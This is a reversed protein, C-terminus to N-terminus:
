QCRALALLARARVVEEAAVALHRVNDYALHLGPPLLRMSQRSLLSPWMDSVGDRIIIPSLAGVAHTRVIHKATAPLAYQIQARVHLKITCFCPIMVKCSLFKSLAKCSLFKSLAHGPAHPVRIPGSWM